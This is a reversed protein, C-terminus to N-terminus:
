RLKTSGKSWAVSCKEARGQLSEPVEECDHAKNKRPASSSPQCQARKATDRTETTIKTEVKAQIGAAVAAKAENAPDTENEAKIEAPQEEAESAAKIELNAKSRLRKKPAGWSCERSRRPARTALNWKRSSQIGGGGRSNKKKKTTKKPDKRM